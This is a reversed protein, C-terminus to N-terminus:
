QASAVWSALVAREDDTMETVNGPPMATSLVSNLAINSRHLQIHAADDLLVGKPASGIGEWVPRAAHCMSCRSLVIAEAEAFTAATGARPKPQPPLLTLGVIAAGCAATVGWTWWPSPLGKHRTNYFHRITAGMIMVM